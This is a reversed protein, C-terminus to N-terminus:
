WRLGSCNPEHGTPVGHWWACLWGADLFIAITFMQTPAIRDRQAALARGGVDVPANVQDTLLYPGKDPLRWDPHMDVSAFHIAIVLVGPLPTTCPPILHTIPRPIRVDFPDLRESSPLRQGNLWVEYRSQTIVGLTLVLHTCDTGAPLEIHHRLWGRRHVGSRIGPVEGPLTISQWARDDYDAQAFEPRDEFTMQWRGSLDVWLPYPAASGSSSMANPAQGGSLIPFLAQLLLITLGYRMISRRM